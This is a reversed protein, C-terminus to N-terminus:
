RRVTRSKDGTCQATRKLKAYYRGAPHPIPQKWKGRSSTFDVAVNKDRGPRRRKLVVKRGAICATSESLVRGRFSGRITVSSTSRGGAVRKEVEATGIEAGNDEVLRVRIANTGPGIARIEATITGDNGTETPTDVFEVAQEGGRTDIIWELRGGGPVNTSVANGADDFTCAILTDTDGVNNSRSVSGTRCPDAPDAPAPQAFALAVRNSTAQWTETITAVDNEDACGYQPDAPDPERDICFVVRQSGSRTSNVLEVPYESFAETFTVPPSPALGSCRDIDGDGDVDEEFDGPEVIVDDPIICRLSGVSAPDQEFTVAPRRMGQARRPHFPNGFQDQLCGHARVTTDLPSADTSEPAACSSNNDVDSNAPTSALYAVPPEARRGAAASFLSDLICHTAAACQGQGGDVESIWIAMTANDPVQEDDFFCEWEKYNPVAKIQSCGDFADEFEPNNGGNAGFSLSAEIEDADPSTRVRLTFGDNPVADGHSFPRFLESAGDYTQRGGFLPAGVSCPNILGLSSACIQFIGGSTTRDLAGGAVHDLVVNEELTQACNGAPDVITMNPDGQCHLALIDRTTTDLAAPIDWFFEYAEDSTAGGPPVNPELDRGILGCEGLEVQDIVGAQGNLGDTKQPCWYWVARHASTTTTLTLHAAGDVGDFRDSLRNGVRGSAGNEDPLFSAPPDAAWAPTGAVTILGSLLVTAWLALLARRKV